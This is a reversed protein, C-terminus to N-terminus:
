LKHKIPRLILAKEGSMYPFSFEANGNETWCFDNYEMISHINMSDLLDFRLSNRLAEYYSKTSKRDSNWWKIEKAEEGTNLEEIKKIAEIPNVDILNKIEEKYTKLYADFNTPSEIRYQMIDYLAAESGELLSKILEVLKPYYVITYQYEYIPVNDNYEGFSKTKGTNIKSVIIVEYRKPNGKPESCREEKRRVRYSCNNILNKLIQELEKASYSVRYKNINDLNKEFYIMSKKDKM